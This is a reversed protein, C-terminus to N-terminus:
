PAPKVSDPSVDDEAEIMLPIPLAGANLDSALQNAEEMTFNGTIQGRSTIKSQIVPSSIMEGDLIIALQRGKNAGTLKGFKEAGEDNLEFCVRFGDYYEDPRVVTARSLVSGDLSIRRKIFRPRFLKGDRHDRELIFRIRVPMNVGADRVANLAFRSLRAAYDPKRSETPWDDARRYGSGSRKYGPPSMDDPIADIMAKENEPVLHFSLHADRCVISRMKDRSEADKERIKVIVGPADERVEVIPEDFGAFDLRRRIIEAIRGLGERVAEDIHKQTREAVDTLGPDEDILKEAVATRDVGVTFVIGSVFPRPARSKAFLSFCEYHMCVAVVGADALLITCGALIMMARRM